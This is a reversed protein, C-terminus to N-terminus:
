LVGCVEGNWVLAKNSILDIVGAFNEEEGIPLQIVLPDCGLNSIMQLSPVM